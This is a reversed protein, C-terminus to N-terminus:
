VLVGRKNTSESAAVLRVDASAAWMAGSKASAAPMAGSLREQINDISDTMSNKKKSRSRGAEM